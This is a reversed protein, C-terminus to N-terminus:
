DSQIHTHDLHAGFVDLRWLFSLLRFYNLNVFPVARCQLVRQIIVHHFDEDILKAVSLGITQDVSSQGDTKKGNSRCNKSKQPIEPVRERQGFRNETQTDQGIENQHSHQGQVTMEHTRTKNKIQRGNKQM